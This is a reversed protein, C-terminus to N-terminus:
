LCESIFHCLHRSFLNLYYWYIFYFYFAQRNETCPGNKKSLRCVSSYCFYQCILFNWSFHMTQQSVVRNYKKRKKKFLAGWIFSSCGVPTFHLGGWRSASLTYNRIALIAQKGIQARHESNKIWECRSVPGHFCASILLKSLFLRWDDLSTGVKWQTSRWWLCFPSGGRPVGM